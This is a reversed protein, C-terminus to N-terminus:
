FEIRGGLTYSDQTIGSLGLLKQYTFYFQKGNATVYVLGLGLKGYDRDPQDSVLAFRETDPADVLQAEILVSDNMSEHLLSMDLQPSLIGSSLSFSKAIQIGAVWQMSTVDFGQYSVDNGGAGRETFGDVNANMYRIGANPTVVLGDKNFHYGASVSVLYQSANTSGQATRDVTVGPLTFNIRRDQEFDNWAYSVRGDLYVNDTPYTSGYGTLMISSSTLGGGNDYDSDFSAYGIAVGAVTKPSFRYDVGATIGTTQFDFGNERGTKDRNGLNVSGNVFGGWPSTLPSASGQDEDAGLTNLTAASIGGQGYRFNLGALSFGGGGGRLQNLRADVNRFQSLGIDVLSRVSALVEEPRYADLVRELGSVDGRDIADFIADCQESLDESQRSCAGVLPDIADRLEPDDILDRLRDGDISPDWDTRRQLTIQARNNTRDLEQLDSTSIASLTVESTGDPVTATLDLEIRSGMNLEISDAFCTIDLGQADCQWPQSVNLESLEVSSTMALAIFNVTDPGLNATRINFAAQTPAIFGSQAGFLTMLDAGRIEVQVTLDLQNNSLEMDQEASSLDLSFNYEAEDPDASFELVLGASLNADLGDRECTFSQTGSCSWGDGTGQVFQLGQPLSGTLQLQTANNESLNTVDISFQVTETGAILQSNQDSSLALDVPGNGESVVVRSDAQNNSEDPDQQESSVVTQSDFEGSRTALLDIAISSSDNLELDLNSFCSVANSDFQCTWDPATVSTVEVGEPITELIQVGTATDPGLNTVTLTAFFAEGASLTETSVVKTVRVDAFGAAAENALVTLASSNNSTRPDFTSSTVQSQLMFSGAQSFFLEFEFQGTEQAEFDDEASCRASVNSNQACQWGVPTSVVSGFQTSPPFTLVVRTNQASDVGLNAANIMVNVATGTTVTGNVVSITSELDAAEPSRFTLTATDSDNGPIDDGNVFLNAQNIFQGSPPQSAVSAVIPFSSSSGPSIFLNSSSLCVVAGPTNETCNWDANGASIFQLGSPLTDTVQIQSVGNTVVGIGSNNSVELSFTVQDQLTVISRDATIGIGFDNVFLDVAQTSTNNSMDPDLTSSTVNAGNVFVGGAPITNAILQIDLSSSTTAIFSTSGVYDCLMVGANVAGCNWDAGTTGILSMGDPLTEVIQVNNADNPGANSVDVTFVVSQGLGVSSVSSSQIISLDSQAAIFNVVASANNNSTNPDIGTNENVSANNTIQSGNPSAVLLVQIDVSSSTGSAFSTPLYNCSVVGGTALSCNWDIGTFSQFALEPPLNDTVTVSNSSLPGSNTVNLTYTFTDNLSASAVSASKSLSFDAGGGIFSVLATSDNNSTDPDLVDSSVSATNTISSGTPASSVLMPISLSSSGGSPIPLGTYSCSLSNSIDVSCNWNPISSPLQPTLEAALPDGLSIADGNGPGLNDINFTYVITDGVSASSLDSTKTLVLDAVPNNFFTVFLAQSNNASDPDAEAATVNASINFDTSIPAQNVTLDLPLSAVATGVNLSSQLLSCTFNQGSTSCSWNSDGASNISMGADVFGSIAVSSAPDPGNNDIDFNVLVSDGIGASNPNAFGNLALDATLAAGGVTFSLPLSTDNSPNTDTGGTYFVSSTFSNTGTSSPTYTFDIKGLDIPPTGPAGALPANMSCDISSTSLFCNALGPDGLGFVLNTIDQDAGPPINISMGATTYGNVGSEWIVRASVTISTGVTINQPSTTTLSTTLDLDQAYVGLAMCLCVIGFVFSNLRRIM